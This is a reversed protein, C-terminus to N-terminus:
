AALKSNHSKGRFNFKLDERITALGNDKLLFDRVSEHIFQVAQRGGRMVEILGKSSSLIFKEIVKYTVVARNWEPVEDETGALIAFYLEERSLPTKAFLVWQLCLILEDINKADRTLMDRFLQHSDTPLEELRKRLRHVRGDSYEENLIRIVLVVWLFIGQAREVMEKRIYEVDDGDNGIKLDQDIVKKIDSVHEPREELVIEIAKQIRVHPYHRSSFCVSFSVGLETALQGLTQFDKVLEQVEKLPCEDLADIFCTLRRDELNRIASEFLGRLAGVNWTMNDSLVLDGIDIQLGEIQTLLRYLLSRYMGEVSKELREGRANFFFSLVISSSSQQYIRKSKEYAFKMVTSKGAGPKGKIWLFGHHTSRLGTDLWAKYAVDDLLWSCTSAHAAKISAHRYAIQDFRLLDILKIRDDASLPVKSKLGKEIIRELAAAVKRYEVDSTTGFRCM